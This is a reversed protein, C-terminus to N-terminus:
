PSSVRPRRSWQHKPDSHVGLIPLASWSAAAMPCTGFPRLRTDGAAAMYQRQVAPANMTPERRRPEFNPERM